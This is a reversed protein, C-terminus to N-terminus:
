KEYRWFIVEAWQRAYEQRYEEETIETWGNALYHAIREPDTQATIADAIYNIFYREM